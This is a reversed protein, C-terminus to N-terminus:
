GPGRGPPSPFQRFSVEEDSLWDAWAELHAVDGVTIAHGELVPERAEIVLRTISTNQIHFRRWAQGELGLLLKLGARVVGGHTVVLMRGEPLSVLFDRMRAAVDAMSEGGPRKTTWPDRNVASFFSPFRAEIEPRLLGQLDGADIERIRTDFRAELGVAQSIPRATEKARALDSSYLADFKMSTARIREAARFAQGVGKPSLPVDLQGQFRGEANWVTEGHRILWVETM